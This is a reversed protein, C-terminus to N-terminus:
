WDFGVIRETVRQIAFAADDQTFQNKSTMELISSLEEELTVKGDRPFDNGLFRMYWHPFQRGVIQPLTVTTIFTHRPDSEIKNMLSEVVEREGEIYQLFVYDRYHLYGSIGLAQNKRAAHDALELLEEDSFNQETLSCYACAFIM